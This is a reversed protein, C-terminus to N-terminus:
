PRLYANPALTAEVGSRVLADRVFGSLKLHEVFMAVASVADQHRARPLGVAQNIQMFAPELIRRSTNAAYEAMPQRIGAVIDLGQEEYVDTASHARVLNAHQLSRSLFLDYATRDGVGIRVRDRDVDHSTIFPADQHTVYVGEILVYPATFVIGEERDPENALFCLDGRGETMATYADRAARVCELHIPVGLWRGTAHAIDVTVGRPDEPTGQALVPNGLNILVRLTGSPAVSASQPPPPISSM